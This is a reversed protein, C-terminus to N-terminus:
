NNVIVSRFTVSIRREKVPDLEHSWKSRADGQMIVLSRPNVTVAVAQGARRYILTGSSCLSLSIITKGFNSSHDIHATIKQGQLYENVLVQDCNPLWSSLHASLRKLWEPLEGKYDRGRRLLSRNYRYTWGYHQTRRKLRNDWPLSDIKAVLWDHQYQNIFNPIVSLGPVEM